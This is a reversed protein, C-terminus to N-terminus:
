RRPPGWNFCMADTHGDRDVDRAGGTGFDCDEDFGNADCVEVNGPFRRPDEDDCDDGGSLISAAGDGDRDVRAAQCRNSAEDCQQGGGCAVPTGARCERLAGPASAVVCREVGNCFLGDDCGDDTACRDRLPAALALRLPAAGATLAARPTADLLTREAGALRVVIRLRDLSWTDPQEFIDAKMRDSVSVEVAAVQDLTGPFTRTVTQTSGGGWTRSENLNRFARVTRGDRTVLAIGVNNGTGSVNGGRLDDAGTTFTFTLEGGDAARAAHPPLLALVLALTPALSAAARFATVPLSM